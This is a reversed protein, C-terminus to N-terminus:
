LEDCQQEEQINIGLATPKSSITNILKKFIFQASTGLVMSSMKSIQFIPAPDDYEAFIIAVSVVINLLTPALNQKCFKSWSFNPKVYAENLNLLLAIIAGVVAMICYSLVAIPTTEQM